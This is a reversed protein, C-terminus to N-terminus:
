PPYRIKYRILNLKPLKTYQTAEERTRKKKYIIYILSSIVMIDIIVIIVTFPTLAIILLNSIFLLTFLSIALLYEFRRTFNFLLYFQPLVM